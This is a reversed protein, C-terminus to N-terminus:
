VQNHNKNIQSLIQSSVYTKANSVDTKSDREVAKQIHTDELIMDDWSLKDEECELLLELPMNKLTISDWQIEIFRNIRTIRGQWGSIDIDYDPDIVGKRVVVSDGIKFDEEKM